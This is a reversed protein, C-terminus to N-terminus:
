RQSPSRVGGFSRFVTTRGEMEVSMSCSSEQQMGGSLSSAAQRQTL